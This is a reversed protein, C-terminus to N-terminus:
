TFQSHWAGKTATLITVLMLDIENLAIQVNVNIRSLPWRSTQRGITSCSTRHLDIFVLNIIHNERKQMQCAEFFAPIHPRPFGIVPICEVSEICLSKDAIWLAFRFGDHQCFATRLLGFFQEFLIELLRSVPLEGCFARSMMPKLLFVVQCLSKLRLDRVRYRWRADEIREEACRSGFHYSHNSRSIQM